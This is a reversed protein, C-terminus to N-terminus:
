NLIVRSACVFFRLNRKNIVLHHINSEKVVSLKKNNKGRNILVGILLYPLGHVYLWAYHKAKNLVILKAYHINHLILLFCM